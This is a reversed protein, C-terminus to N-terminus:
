VKGQHQQLAPSLSIRLEQLQGLLAKIYMTTQPQDRQQQQQDRVQVAKMALLQSHVQLALAADTPCEKNTSIAALGEEMQPTWRLADVQSFHASVVSSLVFCGLVARQRELFRQTTMDGSTDGYWGEFGPAFFGMTHLDQPAPKDLRMEGVLSMALMMLRSLSCGSLLHDWGWATYTLLGLLLDVTRDINGSQNEHQQLFAAECLVRKLESARARKEHASPSAVCVIARFLFPRDRRLQQATLHAPLHVFPFHHLMRSRFTDLYASSTSPELMATTTSRAVPSDYLPSRVLPEPSTTTWAPRVTDTDDDDDDDGFDADGTNSDDSDDSDDDNGTTDVISSIPTTIPPESQGAHTREPAQVATDSDLVKRSQLLSVLGDLRDELKAIRV